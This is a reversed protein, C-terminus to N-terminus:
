FIMAQICLSLRVPIYYFFQHRGRRQSVPRRYRTRGKLLGKLVKPLGYILGLFSGIMICDFAGLMGSWSGVAALLKVDGGGLAERKFLREGLAATVYGMLFGVAAGGISSLPALWWSARPGTWLPNLPSLLVGLGVLGLSLEDPILFTDWDILAVAMFLGCAVASSAAWAPQGHYREYLAWSILGMM